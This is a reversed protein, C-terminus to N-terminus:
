KPLPADSAEAVEIDELAGSEVLAVLEAQTAPIKVEPPVHGVVEVTVKKCRGFKFAANQTPKLIDVVGKLDKRTRDLVIRYGPDEFKCGRNPVTTDLAVKIVTRLPFSVEASNEGLELDRSVAAGIQPNLRTGSSTPKHGGNESPHSTYATATATVTEQSHASLPVILCIAVLFRFFM